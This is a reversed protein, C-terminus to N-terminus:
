KGTFFHGRLENVPVSLRRGATVSHNMRCQRSRDTTSCQGRTIEDFSRAHNLTALTLATQEFHEQRVPVLQPGVPQPPDVRQELVLGHNIRDDLRELGLEGDVVDFPPRRLLEDGLPAVGPQDSRRLVQRSAALYAAPRFPGIIQPDIGPAYAALLSGAIIPALNRLLHRGAIKTVSQGQVSLADIYPLRREHEAATMTLRTGGGEPAFDDGHLPQWGPGGERRILPPNREDAM